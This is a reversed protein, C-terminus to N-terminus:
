ENASVVTTETPFVLPSITSFGEFLYYKVKLTEFNSVGEFNVTAPATGTVPATKAALFVPAAENEANYLSAILVGSRDSPLVVDVTASVMETQSNYQAVPRYMVYEGTLAFAAENDFSCQIETYGNDVMICSYGCNETIQEDSFWVLPKETAVSGIVEFEVTLLLTGDEEPAVLTYDDAYLAIINGVVGGTDGPNYGSVGLSPIDELAVAGSNYKLVDTDFALHLQFGVIKENLMAESVGSIKISAEATDGICYIEKDLEIDLTILSADASIAFGSYTFFTFIMLAFALTTLIWKKKM